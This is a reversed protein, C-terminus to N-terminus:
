SRAHGSAAHRHATTFYAIPAMSALGCGATLVATRVGFTNALIGGTAAGLPMAFYVLLRYSAGVRGLLEDPITRQRLALTLVNWVSTGGIAVALLLAAVVPRDQQSMVIFLAGTLGTSVLLVVSLPYKRLRPALLSGALGGLAPLILFVGFGLNGLGLAVRAFVVFVGNSVFVFFGLGM